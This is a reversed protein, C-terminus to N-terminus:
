HVTTQDSNWQSCGVGDFRGDKAESGRSKQLSPVHVVWWQQEVLKSSFNPIGLRVQKVIFFVTPHRSNTTRLGLLIIQLCVSALQLLKSRLTNSPNDFGYHCLYVLVKDIGHSLKPSLFALNLRPPTTCSLHLQILVYV